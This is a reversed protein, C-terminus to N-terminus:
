SKKSKPQEGSVESRRAASPQRARRLKQVAEPLFQLAVSLAEPLDRLVKDREVLLALALASLPSKKFRATQTQQAQNQKKRARKQKTESNNTANEKRKLFSIAAQNPQNLKRKPKTQNPKTRAAILEVLEPRGLENLVHVTGDSRELAFRRQLFDILNTKDQVNSEFLVGRAMSQNNM